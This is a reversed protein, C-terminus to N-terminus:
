SSVAGATCRKSVLETTFICRLGVSDDTKQTTKTVSFIAENNVPFDHMNLLTGYISITCFFPEPTNLTFLTFSPSKYIKKRLKGYVKLCHQSHM